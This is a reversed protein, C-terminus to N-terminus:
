QFGFVRADGLVALLTLQRVARQGTAEFKERFDEFEGADVVLLPEYGQARFTALVQDLRTPSLLDWRLTPRGAYYRISGSHQAALVFANAPGRNRVFAGALPYKREQNRIDFAGHTYAIHLSAAVLCALTALAVPSRWAPSLRRVCWLTVAAAYVLMVAIAPLLFRTYFWENSHFYVYPLYAAWVAAALALATWAVLPRLSRRAIWFPAALSLWIFWTHSETLWRPYRALNPVIHRPSFGDALTGYGSALPSGYRVEQVWGLLALAPVLAVAFLVARRARFATGSFIAPIAILAALPALNPRILIALSCAAGAGASASPLGYSALVLASLWCAASPVDSMPQVVQYLFTPSVALLTAGTAGALPDGFLAGLRYTVWVLLAGCAPVLWYISTESWAALPALLLPLGPPYKPAIVGPPRGITFGLPTLTAEVDPWTYDPSFPVTDTLHGQALLKAQGVYGYSDAGGIAFTSFGVGAALTWLLAPIVLWPTVTPSAVARWTEASMAGIRARAVAILLIAGALALMAPRVWSHSRLRVGAIRLDFGGTFAVTIAYVAGIAIAALLWGM